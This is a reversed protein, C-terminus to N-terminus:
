VWLAMNMADSAPPPLLTSFASSESSVRAVMRAHLPSPATKSTSPEATVTRSGMPVSARAPTISAAFEPVVMLIAAPMAPSSRCSVTRVPSPLRCFLGM